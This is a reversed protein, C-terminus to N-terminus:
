IPKQCKKCIRVKSKDKSIKVGFRVGKNCSSCFLAVNSIALPAPIDKIGGPDNESRRRIHKKVLNVGEVLVQLKEPIAKVVKGTKGKDRGAIVVVKDGKKIRFSM